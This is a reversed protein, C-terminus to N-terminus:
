GDPPVFPQNRPLDNRRDDVARFLKQLGHPVVPHIDPRRAAFRGIHPIQHPGNDHVRRHRRPHPASVDDRVVSDLRPIHDHPQRRESLGPILRSIVAPHPAVPQSGGPVINEPLRQCRPIRLRIVPTNRFLQNIAAPESQGIRHRRLIMRCLICQGIRHIHPPEHQRRRPSIRRHHGANQAFDPSPMDAPHDMTRPPRLCLDQVKSLLPQM